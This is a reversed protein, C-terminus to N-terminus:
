QKLAQALDARAKETAKKFAEEAAKIADDRTKKLTSISVGDKTTQQASKFITRAEDVSKNFAASVTKSDVGAGCDLKAKALAANVATKFTEFATNTGTNQTTTYTAIADRYNKIALDVAARRDAVAQTIVNKYTTIAMKQADTTAKETMKDWNKARKGDVDARNQARKADLDGQKKNFRESKESQNKVHRSEANTIQEAMKDYVNSLKTCFGANGKLEKGLGIKEREREGMDDRGKDAFVFTAPILFSVVLVGAFGKKFNYNM